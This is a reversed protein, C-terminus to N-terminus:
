FEQFVALTDLFGYWFLLFFIKILLLMRLENSVLVLFKYGLIVILALFELIIQKHYSKRTKFKVLPSIKM